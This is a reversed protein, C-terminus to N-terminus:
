AWEEEYIIAAVLNVPSVAVAWSFKLPEGHPVIIPSGDATDVPQQTSCIYIGSVTVTIPPRGSLNPSSVSMQHVIWNMSSPPVLELEAPQLYGSSPTEYLVAKRLILRSM